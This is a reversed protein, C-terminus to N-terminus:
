SPVTEKPASPLRVGFVSGTPRNPMYWADGGAARALGRVISLGLGTGQTAKSMKKDARAFKEFLRPVFEPPVGPGQDAVQIECEGDHCRAAVVIPPAGYVSANRVYNTVIRALHEPDAFVRTGEPVDVRVEAAGTALDDVLQTMAERLDVVQPESRIAGAEIQSVTLLDEILRALHRAQRSIADLMERKQPDSVLEWKSTLLSAYGTIVATPTRLDHSAIAVFDRMTETNEREREFLAARSLAMDTLVGLALLARSEERGFFPTFPTTLVVLWGMGLPVWLAGHANVVDQTRTLGAARERLAELQLDDLGHTGVVSGDDALIAAGQGGILRSVRPLLSTAVDGPELARMLGIEADRLAQEDARRWYTLVAAPPAFGLLFLPASLLIVVQAALQVATVESGSSTGSLLLAVAVGLAGLGLTRMRRRSVTPQATGARWLRVAVYVSLTTWHALLVLVYLAFAPARPEDPGPLRPLAFAWLSVVATAVAAAVSVWRRPPQFTATFRFLLYPFLVLVAVLAKAAWQQWDEVPDVPLVRGIVAISGLLGFTAALWAHARDKRVVWLRVAILGLGALVVIQVDRLVEWIARVGDM